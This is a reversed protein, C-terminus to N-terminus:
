FDSSNGDFMMGAPYVFPSPNSGNGGIFTPAKTVSDWVDGTQM